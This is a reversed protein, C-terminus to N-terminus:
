GRHMVRKGPRLLKRPEPTTGQAMKLIAGIDGVALAADLDAGGEPAGQAGKQPRKLPKPAGTRPLVREPRELPKRRLLPRAQEPAAPHKRKLPEPKADRVQLKGGPKRVIEMRPRPMAARKARLRAQYTGTYNPHNIGWEEKALRANTWDFIYEMSRPMVIGTRCKCLSFYYHCAGCSAYSVHHGDPMIVQLETVRREKRDWKFYTNPLTMEPDLKFAFKPHKPAKDPHVLVSDPERRIGRVMPDPIRKLKKLM